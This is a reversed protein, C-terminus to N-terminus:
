KKTTFASLPRRRPPSSLRLSGHSGEFILVSTLPKPPSSNSKSTVPAAAHSVTAAAAAAVGASGVQSAGLKPSLCLRSEKRALFNMSPKEDGRM